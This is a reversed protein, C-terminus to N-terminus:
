EWRNKGQKERELLIKRDVKGRDNKPLDGVFVVWRPYKHKSLRSKVYEQLEARFGETVNTTGLKDRMEVRPVVFAKPKDLGAEEAPIV